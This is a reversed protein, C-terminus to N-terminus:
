RPRRGAADSRNRLKRSGHHARELADLILDLGLEFENGYDYGSQLVHERAV